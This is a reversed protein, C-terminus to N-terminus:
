TGTGAPDVSIRASIGGPERTAECLGGLTRVRERIVPSALIGKVAENDPQASIFELRLESRTDTLSVIELTILTKGAGPHRIAKEAWEQVAALLLNRVQPSTGPPLAGIKFEVDVRADEQLLRSYWDFAAAADGDDFLPPALAYSIVRLDRCCRDVLSLTHKVEATTVRDPERELKALSLGLVVLYQSITDHLYRSVDRRARSQAEIFEGSLSTLAREADRLSTVDVGTAVVYEPNGARDRTVVNSWSLMRASGDRMRWRNELHLTGESGTILSHFAARLMEVDEEFILLTQWFYQGVIEEASFGTLAEAARNFLVFRGRRDVVVIVVQAIDLIAKLWITRDANLDIARHATRDLDPAGALRITAFLGDRVRVCDCRARLHRGDRLNLRCLRATTPHAAELLEAPRCSCPFIAEIEAATMPAILLDALKHDFALANGNIDFLILGESSVEWAERCLHEPLGEVAASDNLV